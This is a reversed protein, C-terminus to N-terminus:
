AELPKRFVARVVAGPGKHFIGEKLDVVREELLLPEAPAFDKRLMESTFLLSLDGPGGSGYRKKYELQDPTFAELIILGGPKLAALM